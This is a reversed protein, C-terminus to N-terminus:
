RGMLAATTRWFCDPSTTRTSPISFTRAPTIQLSSLAPARRPVATQRAKFLSDMLRSMMAVTFTLKERTGGSAAGTVVSENAGADGTRTRADIGAQAGQLTLTKGITVEEAYTGPDVTITAGAAAANVAAQITSYVTPSGVIHAALLVRNELLEVLGVCVPHAVHTRRICHHIAM